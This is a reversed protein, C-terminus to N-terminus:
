TYQNTNLGNLWAKLPVGAKIVEELQQPSRGGVIPFVYPAKNMAWAVAISGLTAGNGMETALKELVASVSKEVATQPTNFRIVSRAKVEAETKFKGQPDWLTLTVPRDIAWESDTRATPFVFYKRRGHRPGSCRVRCSQRVYRDLSAGLLM